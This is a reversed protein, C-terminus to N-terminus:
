DGLHAAVLKKLAAPDSTPASCSGASCVFAAAQKMPPYDVDPNPLPGEKQDWWEIRRYATPSAIAAAFLAKATKDKKSGIVTVHLPAQGAEATALLTGAVPRNVAVDPSTLYRLVGDLLAKEGPDGTYRWLLNAFRACAVNQDKEVAPAPGHAGLALPPTPLVGLGDPSAFNAAIFTAADRARQLWVRDATVGYLALEANGMALTDDLYPGGVDPAPAAEDHRFGGGPLSRNAVVWNAAKLARALTDAEGTVAYAQAFAAIAWGNERAYSHQDVRPMPLTRRGADDLAFFDASHQGPVSDADQSTYFAGVPSTLFAALFRRVEGVDHTWSPDAAAALAYLRLNNSQVTMIKEFHPHAWDGDTSYQYVGGWTPDFLAEQAKLTQKVEAAATADGRQARWMAYEVSDADMYKQDFGWSGMNVDYGINWTALASDFVAQPLAGSGPAPPPGGSGTVSPGPTPDDVFALLMSAMPIPPIFGRRRALDNGDADLLITAPWGYDEYRTALDPRSEQDVRLAVYHDAILTAVAPDSYTEADMVHCWHCWVAQLDLLVLRHQAKADAFAADSYPRWAIEPAQRGPDAPSPAVTPAVPAAALASSLAFALAVLSPLM